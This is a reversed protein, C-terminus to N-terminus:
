VATVANVEPYKYRKLSVLTTLAICSTDVSLVEGQHYNVRANGAGEAASTRTPFLLQGMVIQLLMLLRWLIAGGGIAKKVNAPLINIAGKKGPLGLLLFNSTAVKRKCRSLLVFCFFLWNVWHCKRPFRSPLVFVSLSTTTLGTSGKNNRIWCGRASSCGKSCPFLPEAM